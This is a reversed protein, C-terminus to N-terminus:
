DGWDKREDENDYGANYEAIQEASLTEVRVSEVFYHPDKPRGYYADASGRDAPSGNEPLTNTNM